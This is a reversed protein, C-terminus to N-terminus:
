PKKMLGMGRGPKPRGNKNNNSGKHLALLANIVDTLDDEEDKKSAIKNVNDFQVDKSAVKHTRLMHTKMGPRKSRFRCLACTFVPEEM